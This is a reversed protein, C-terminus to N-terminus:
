LFTMTLLGIISKALTPSKYASVGNAYSEIGTLAASGSSVARLLLTITLVGMSAQMHDLQNQTYTLTHLSNHKYPYIGV